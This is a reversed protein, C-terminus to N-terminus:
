EDLRSRIERIYSSTDDLYPYSIAKGDRDVIIYHPITRIHFRDSIAKAQGANVKYHIGKIGSIIELYKVPNSSEDAIYIWVIDDESLEKSNLPENNKMTMICPRCWTNWFDVVVVKGKHPAIIADFVDKDHVDPIESVKAKEILELYKRKTRQNLSDCADAFFPNSLKRLTYLDSPEIKCKKAKDAMIRYINLSKSLDGKAGYMSWDTKVISEGALLLKPNSIDFWGAVEAFDKDSLHASVSDAPVDTRYDYFNKKYRYSRELITKYDSIAELVDNQLLQEQYEKNMLSFDSVDISNTNELFLKHIYNLYEESSMRYDVFDGSYLSLGYSIDTNDTMRDFNAFKGDHLSKKYAKMSFNERNRMATGGTIRFDVWCNITEGPELTMCSLAQASKNDVVFARCTGYQDFKMTAFGNSNFELTYQDQSGDMNNVILLMDPKMEDRSATLQINLTKEGITFVPEPVASDVFDKRVDNPVEEPYEPQFKGSIDIDLLMSEGGYFDLMQTSDPIPDFILSFDARGSEPIPFREDPVIGISGRLAFTNGDTSLFCDKSVVVNDGPWPNAAM